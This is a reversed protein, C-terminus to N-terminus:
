VEQIQKAIADLRALNKHGLNGYLRISEPKPAIRRPHAQKVYVGCYGDTKLQNYAGIYRNITNPNRSDVIKSVMKFMVDRMKPANLIIKKSKSNIQGQQTTRHYMRVGFVELPHGRYDLEQM